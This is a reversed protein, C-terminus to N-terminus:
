KSDAVYNMTTAKSGGWSRDIVTGDIANITAYSVNSQNYVYEHNPGLDPDKGKDSMKDTCTGYLDWAPVLLYSGVHDKQPIRALGLSIKTIQITRSEVLPDNTFVGEYEMAKAFKQEIQDFPLLAANQTVTKGIKEPRLWIFEALGTNDVSVSLSEEPWPESYIADQLDSESSSSSDEGMIGNIVSAGGMRYENLPIDTYNMPIGQMTQTFHYIYNLTATDTAALKMDTLGLEAVAKQAIAAGQDASITLVPLKSVDTYLVNRGNEFRVSEDKDDASKQIRLTALNPQGLDAEAFLGTYKQLGDNSSTESSSSDPNLLSSAPVVDLPGLKGDSPKRVITDPATALRAELQEVQPQIFKAYAAPDATHMDSNKGAKLDAIKQLIEAKTMDKNMDRIPYITKGQMLVKVMKNTLDQSVDLPAIQYVPYRTVDPTEVTADIDIILKEHTYTAKWTQPADYRGTPATQALRSELVGNNKNTVPPTSPTKHCATLALTGVLVVAAIKISPIINKKM